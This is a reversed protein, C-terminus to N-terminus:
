VATKSHIELNYELPSLSISGIKAAIHSSLVEIVFEIGFLCWFSVLRFTVPVQVCVLGGDTHEHMNMHMCVYVKHLDFNSM